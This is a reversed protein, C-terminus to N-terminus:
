RNMLTWGVLVLLVFLGGKAWNPIADISFGSNQVVQSGTNTPPVSPSTASFAGATGTGATRTGPQQFPNQTTKSPPGTVNSFAIKCHPCVGTKVASTPIEKGCSSCLLVETAGATPDVPPTTEASTTAETETGDAPMESSAPDTKKPKTLSKIGGFGSQGPGKVPPKAARPKRNKPARPDLPIPAVQSGAHVAMAPDETPDSGPLSTSPTTSPTIAVQSSGVPLSADEVTVSAFAAVLRKSVTEFDEKPTFEFEGDLTRLSEIREFSISSGGDIRGRDRPPSKKMTEIVVESDTLSVLKGRISSATSPQVMKIIVEPRTPFVYRLRDPTEPAQALAVGTWTLAIGVMLGAIRGWM